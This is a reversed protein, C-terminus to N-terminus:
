QDSLGSPEPAFCLPLRWGKDAIIEGRIGALCACLKCGGRVSSCGCAQEIPQLTQVARTCLLASRPLWQGCAAGAFALCLLCHASMGCRLGVALKSFQDAPRSRHLALLFTCAKTQLAAHTLAQRDSLCVTQMQKAGLAAALKSSQDTDKVAEVCLLASPALRQRCAMGARAPWVPVCNAGVRMSPCGCVRETPRRDRGAGTCLLSSPPLRQRCAAGALTPWVPACNAVAECQHAAAFASSQDSIKSLEPAFCLSLRWGKDALLKHASWVPVFNADAECRHAAALKSSQDLLAEAGLLSSPPLRQTPM